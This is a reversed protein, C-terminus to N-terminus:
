LIVVLGQVVYLGGVILAAFQAITRAAPVSGLCGFLLTPLLFLTTVVFFVLFFVLGYLVRGSVFVDGFAALFPPCLNLGMLLGFFFPTQAGDIRSGFKRCLGLNPFGGKLGFVILLAGLGLFSAGAIGRPLHGELTGGAWGAALGVVLYAALRGFTFMLFPLLKGHWSRREEGAMLPALVPMCTGLCSLGTSLGLFLAKVVPEFVNM